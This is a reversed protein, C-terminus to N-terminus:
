REYETPDGRVQYMMPLPQKGQEPTNRTSSDPFWIWPPPSRGDSTEFNAIHDNEDFDIRLNYDRFKGEQVHFCLPFVYDGEIIPYVYAISGRDKTAGQPPGLLAIVTKRTTVGRLLTDSSGDPRILPRFDKQAVSQPHPIPLYFCGSLM